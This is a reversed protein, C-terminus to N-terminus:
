SVVTRLYRVRRWPVTLFLESDCIVSYKCLLRTGAGHEIITALHHVKYHTGAMARLSLPTESLFRGCRTGM